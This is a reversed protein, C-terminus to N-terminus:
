VGKKDFNLRKDNSVEREYGERGNDRKDSRNSLAGKSPTTSRGAKSNINL